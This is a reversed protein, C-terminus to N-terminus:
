QIMIKTTMVAKLALEPLAHYGLNYSNYDLEWLFSDLDFQERTSRIRFKQRRWQM